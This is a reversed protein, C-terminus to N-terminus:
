RSGHALASIAEVGAGRVRLDDALPPSLQPQSRSSPLTSRSRSHSVCWRERRTSAGRSSRRPSRRPALARHQGDAAPGVGVDVRDEPHELAEVARAARQDARPAVLPRLVPVGPRLDAEQLLGHAPPVVPELPDVVARHVPRHQARPHRLRDARRGVVRVARASSRRAPAEPSRARARQRQREVRLPSRRRRGARAVRRRQACECRGSRRAPRRRRTRRRSGPSMGSSWRRSSASDSASSESGSASGASIKPLTVPRVSRTALSRGTPTRRRAATRRRRGVAGRRQDRAAHEVEAM